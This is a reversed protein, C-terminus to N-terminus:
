GLIAHQTIGAVQLQTIPICRLVPATVACAVVALVELLAGVSVAASIM